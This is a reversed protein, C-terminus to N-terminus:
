IYISSWKGNLTKSRIEYILNLLSNGMNNSAHRSHNVKLCGWRKYLVIARWKFSYVFSHIISPFLLHFTYTKLKLKHRIKARFTPYPTAVDRVKIAFFVYYLCDFHHCFEEIYRSFVQQYNSIKWYKKILKNYM